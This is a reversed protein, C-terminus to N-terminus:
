AFGPLKFIVFICVPLFLATWYHFVTFNENKLKRGANRSGWYKITPNKEM